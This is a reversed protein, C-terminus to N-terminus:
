FPLDDVIPAGGMPSASNFAGVSPIGPIQPLASPAKAEVKNSVSEISTNINLLPSFGDKKIEIVGEGVFSQFALNGNDVHKWVNKTKYCSLLKMWTTIPTGKDSLYVAKGANGTNFLKAVNTFLTDYAAVVEEAELPNFQGEEDVDNLPLVLAEVEAETLERGKLLYIDLFHKIYGLVAGEVKWAATGGPMTDVTSEVPTFTKYVHARQTANAELSTFHFSLRPVKLGKFVSKSDDGDKFDMYDLKVEALAGVFLGTSKDIMSVHFKRQAASRTENNIGRGIVKKTEVKKETM